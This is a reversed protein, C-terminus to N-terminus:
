NKRLYMNRVKDYVEQPITPTGKSYVPALNGNAAKSDTCWTDNRFIVREQKNRMNPIAFPINNNCVSKYAFHGPMWMDLAEYIDISNNGEDEGMIKKIFYYMPYFDSGSHGSDLKKTLENEILPKPDYTIFQNNLFTSIRDVGEKLRGSEGMGKEGYLCYWIAHPERRLALSHLSKIVAGNELTIMEIGSSGSKAGVDRLRQM